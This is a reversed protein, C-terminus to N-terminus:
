VIDEDMEDDEDTMDEIAASIKSRFEAFSACKSEESAFVKGGYSAWVAPSKPAWVVGAFPALVAAGPAVVVGAAPAMVMTCLPAIVIGAAPAAVVSGPLAVVVGTGASVSVATFANVSCWSGATVSVFGGVSAAVKSLPAVHFASGVDVSLRSMPSWVVTCLGTIVQRARPASVRKRRVECTVDGPRAKVGPRTKVLAALAGKVSSADLTRGM